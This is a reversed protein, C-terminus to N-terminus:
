FIRSLNKPSGSRTVHRTLAPNQVIMTVLMVEYNGAIHPGYADNNIPPIEDTNIAPVENPTIGDVIVLFDGRGVGDVVRDRFALAENM